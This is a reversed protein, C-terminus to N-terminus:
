ASRGRHISRTGGGSPSCGASSSRSDAERYRAALVADIWEISLPPMGLRELEGRDRAPEIGIVIEVLAGSACIRGINALTAREGSAVAALLSGWPFHVHVEDAVGDLEVPLEEVAAQLFLVNAAGGKEPKRHIKESIKELPRPSPDIGIYFRDPNRRASQYVFLGDGTGLDVIM